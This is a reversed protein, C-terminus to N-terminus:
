YNNLKTFWVPANSCDRINAEDRASSRVSPRIAGVPHNGHFKTSPVKVFSKDLFDLDPQFQAFTDSM